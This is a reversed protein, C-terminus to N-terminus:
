EINERKRKERKTERREERERKRSKEDFKDMMTKEDITRTLRSMLRLRDREKTKGEGAKDVIM